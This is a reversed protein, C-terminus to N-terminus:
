LNHFLGLEAFDFWKNVFKAVNLPGWMWNAQGAWFYCRGKISGCAVFCDVSLDLPLKGLHFEHGCHLRATSREGAGALVADLCISCSVAAAKDEKGGAAAEEAPAGAATAAAPEKPEAAGVGM